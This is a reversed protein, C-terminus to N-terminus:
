GSRIWDAFGADPVHFNLLRARDSGANRFGRRAGRPAVFLTGPGGVVLEEGSVFEVDGALVYFGDVQDDHTHPPVEFTDDFEIEHVSLDRHDIRITVTRNAREFREGEGPRSVLPEELRADDDSM